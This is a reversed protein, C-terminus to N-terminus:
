LMAHPISITTSLIRVSPFINSGAPREPRKRLTFRYARGYYIINAKRSRDIYPKIQEYDRVPVASKYEDYTKVQDLKHDTGFVTQSGIKLQNKLIADQDALATGM